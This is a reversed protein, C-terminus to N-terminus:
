RSISREGSKIQPRELRSSPRKMLKDDQAYDLSRWEEISLDLNLSKKILRIGENTSPGGVM